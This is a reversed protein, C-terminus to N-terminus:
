KWDLVEVKYRQVDGQVKTMMEFQQNEGGRIGESSVAYSWDTTLVNEDGDMYTVKIKVYYHTTASLNHVTGSCYWYGRKENVHSDTIQVPNKADYEAQMKKKLEEKYLAYEKEALEYDVENNIKEAMEFLLTRNETLLPELLSRYQNGPIRSFHKVNDLINCNTNAMKQAADVIVPYIDADLNEAVFDSYNGLYYFIASMQSGEDLFGQIQGMLEVKHVYDGLLSEDDLDHSIELAESYEGCQYHTLIQDALLQREQNEKRQQFISCELICLLVICVISIWAVGNTGLKFNSSVLSSEITVDAVDKIDAQKREESVKKAISKVKRKREYKGAMTNEGEKNYEIKLM